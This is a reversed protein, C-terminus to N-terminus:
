FFPNHMCMKALAVPMALTHGHMCEFKHIKKNFFNDGCLFNAYKTIFNFKFCISFKLFLNM